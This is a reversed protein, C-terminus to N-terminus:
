QQGRVIDRAIKPADLHDTNVTVTALRRYIDIRQALLDAWQKRPNGLLLPRSANLGIRPAAAALSVDLFVVTGGSAAYNEICRQTAPDLVAGGGLAVVGDDASLARLVVDREMSRFHEEGDDVFIDAIKKGALHEVDADTDRRSIGLLSALARAVTSKGAGPPGILVFQPPM